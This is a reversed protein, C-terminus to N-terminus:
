PAGKLRSTSCVAATSITTSCLSRVLAPPRPCGDKVIGLQCGVDSSHLAAGCLACSPPPSILQPRLLQAFLSSLRWSWFCQWWKATLASLLGRLGWGGWSPVWCYPWCCSVTCIWARHLSGYCALVLGRRSFPLCYHACEDFGSWNVPPVVACDPVPSTLQTSTSCCEVQWVCIINQITLQWVNESCILHIWCTMTQGYWSTDLFLPVTTMFQLNSWHCQCHFLVLQVHYEVM